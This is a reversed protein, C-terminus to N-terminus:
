RGRAVMRAIEPATVHKQLAEVLAAVGDGKMVVASASGALEEQEKRTLEKVTWVVVPTHASAVGDRLRRLLEFGDPPPMVLDTVVADPLAGGAARLASETSTRCMVRYGLQRLTRDALKLSAPDDDVVLISPAGDDADRVDLRPFPGGAPQPSRPLVAFFVSGTGPTSRVGVRGGQAEAIRRSLALGLGTGQHMKATSSDLQQFETFLKPVDDARIGVGTDEVELRFRLADEPTVRIAVRGGDPTFKLANAVYNYLIQKLKGADAVVVAVVPEVASTIAIRKQASLAGLTHCVDRILEGIDVTDTHFEIKGSEVKSLDLVDNILQLLHRASTLVDGLYERHDTSVPGVKGDHMLEAFGIIGNLPTRLEHSMNALFESKLRNAEQINRYQEELEENKHQLQARLAQQETIDRIASSILMGAETEMPSLSIEVPFESGDSRRGWLELGRGMPRVGPTALFGARHGGHRSRFREPILMEVPKNLLDARGYGFTKEAQANVLVIRGAADVIVMADPASELLQRFRLEGRRLDREIRQWATLDRSITTLGILEGGPGRRATITLHATFRSGDARVQRMEGEWKGRERATALIDTSRGSRVDDPEFTVATRGIVDAAGYGYMRHAGENWTLITGDLGTAIISYETASQLVGDLLSTTEMVQHERVALSGAMQNFARALEVVEQPGSERARQEFDGAGLGRASQQLARIPRTVVTALAVVIAGAGVLALTAWGLMRRHTAAIEGEVEARAQHVWVKWGLHRVTAYAALRPEGSTDAYESVRGTDSNAAQRWVSTKSFDRRDQVLSPARDTLATGDASAFQAHGTRGLQIRDALTQLHALGLGASVVGLLRGAGDVIPANVTILPVGSVRGILVDGDAFPRRTAVVTQFWRRDSMDTGVGRRGEPTTAPDTAIIRGRTDVIALGVLAPYSDRSRRILRTLHRTTFAPEATAESAVATAASRHLSVFQDVESALGQALLQSDRLAGSIMLDRVSHALSFGVFALPMVAIPLMAAALTARLSWRGGLRSVRPWGALWGIIRQTM